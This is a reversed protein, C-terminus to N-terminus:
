NSMKKIKRWEWPATLFEGQWLGRKEAKASEELKFYLEDKTYQDYVWVCGEAVLQANILHHNRYVEGVERQYLDITLIRVTVRKNLVLNSLCEKANQGFDQKLEPADIKALRIKHTRNGQDVLTLTDGDYVKVVFGSIEEEAQVIGYWFIFLILLWKM